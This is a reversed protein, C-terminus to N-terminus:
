KDISRNDSNIKRDDILTKYAGLIQLFRKHDKSIDPHFKKALRCFARRIEEKPAGEELDLIEYYSKM